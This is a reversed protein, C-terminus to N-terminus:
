GPKPAAASGALLGGVRADEFFADLLRQAQLCREAQGTAALVGQEREIDGIEVLEVLDHLAQRPPLRM